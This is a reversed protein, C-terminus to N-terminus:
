RLKHLVSTRIGPPDKRGVDQAAPIFGTGTTEGTARLYEVEVRASDIITGAVQAIVRAREPELPADKDRLARLAAFLEGRLDDITQTHKDNV